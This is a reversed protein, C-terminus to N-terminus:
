YTFNDYNIPAKLSKTLMWSLNGIEGHSLTEINFGTKFIQLDEFSTMNEELKSNHRDPAKFLNQNYKHM